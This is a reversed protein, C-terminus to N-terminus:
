ADLGRWEEPTLSAKSLNCPECAVCLNDFDHKGGRSVPIRHDIHITEPECGCYVCRAEDRDIVAARLSKAIKRRKINGRSDLRCADFNIRSLRDRDKARRSEILERDADARAALMAVEAILEAPTGAEILRKLLDASV